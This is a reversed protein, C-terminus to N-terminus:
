PQATPRAVPTVPAPGHPRLSSLVVAAQHLHEPHAREIDLALLHAVDNVTGTEALTM